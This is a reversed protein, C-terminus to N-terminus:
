RSAAPAPTAAASPAAEFLRVKQGPTLVHVGATVVTQGPQLGSAIVVHNGDAGAVAVPQLKVTMSGTDVLWVATQGQQQLVASLPLKNVGARPPSQVLVTVTQGLQLSTKGLDAKVQFTRTAPDAAAAVERVTATQTTQSAWARVTLAGPKGLLARFNDVRDEPVTFVADRPGDLALRLVPVGVALVTGPEADVGTVVGAAPALLNAYGAQNGQVGAQARAQELQANAAQLATQRRDLEIASIFGQDRLDKYRKFETAAQEQNLRAVRVAAQASDQGLRLDTPDIQALVQGAKVQQGADVLRQTMKGAVRFGLRSEARARVEAAFEHTSATSDATVTMTRVARVPEPAPVKPSCAALLAVVSVAGWHRAPQWAARLARPFPMRSRPMM